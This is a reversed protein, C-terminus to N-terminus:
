GTKKSVGASKLHSSLYCIMTIKYILKVTWTNRLKIVNVLFFALPQVKYIIPHREAQVCLNIITTEHIGNIKMVKDWILLVIHQEVHAAIIM